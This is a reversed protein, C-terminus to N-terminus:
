GHSDGDAYAAIGYFAAHGLSIQRRLGMLLNLRADPDHQFGAIIPVTLYYENPFSFRVVAVGAAFSAFGLIIRAFRCGAM